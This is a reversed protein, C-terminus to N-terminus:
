VFISTRHAVGGDKQHLAVELAKKAHQYGARHHWSDTSSMSRLYEVVVGSFEGVTQFNFKKSHHLHHLYVHRYNTEAWLQKAEQAMLLPVSELKAGDGHSFGLLNDGYRVYKRHAMSVDFTINPHKVFYSSITDALMFGTVYDHNSPCHIVHVKALQVLKLLADVYLEKAAIFNDYWMGSVDQNTGKTTTKFANDIHLIDNGLVFYIVEINENAFQEIARDVGRKAREVAITVDYAEGTEAVSSLKGIHLDAIDLVMALPERGARTYQISPYEPSFSQLDEVLLQRLKDFPIEKGVGNPNKLMVSITNDPKYWAINWNDANDFGGELLANSAADPGTLELYKRYADSGLRYRKSQNPSLGLEIALEDSMRVRRKSGM